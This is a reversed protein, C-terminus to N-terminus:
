TGFSCASFFIKRLGESTASRPKGFIMLRGYKAVTVLSTSISTLTAALSASIGTSSNRASFGACLRGTILACVGITTGSSLSSVNLRLM